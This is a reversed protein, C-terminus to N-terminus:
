NRHRVQVRESTPLQIDEFQDEICMLRGTGTNVWANQPEARARFEDRLVRKRCCKNDLDHRFEYLGEM